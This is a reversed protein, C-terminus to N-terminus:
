VTSQTLSSATGTVTVTGTGTGGSSDSGGIILGPFVGTLGDITFTSSGSVTLSGEGDDGVVAELAGQHQAWGELELDAVVADLDRRGVDRERVRGRRDVGDPRRQARAGRGVPDALRQTADGVAAGRHAEEARRAFRQWGEVDPNSAPSTIDASQARYRATEQPTRIAVEGGKPLMWHFRLAM